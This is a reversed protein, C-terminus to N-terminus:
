VLVDGHRALAPRARRDGRGVDVQAGAVAPPQEQVVSRGHRLRLLRAAAIGRLDQVLTRVSMRAAYRAGQHSGPPSAWVSYANASPRRELAANARSRQRAGSPSKM